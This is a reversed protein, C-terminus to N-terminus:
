FHFFKHIFDSLVGLVVLSCALECCFAVQIDLLLTLTRVRASHSTLIGTVTQARHRGSSGMLAVLVSHFSKLLITVVLGLCQMQPTYVCLCHNM